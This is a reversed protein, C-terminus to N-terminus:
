PNSQLYTSMASKLAREATARLESLQDHQHAARMAVVTRRADLMTCSARQAVILCVVGAISGLAELGDLRESSYRSVLVQRGMASCGLLRAHIRRWRETAYIRRHAQEIANWSSTACGTGVAGQALAQEFAEHHSQLGLAGSAEGFYWALDAEARARDYDGRNSRRQEPRTESDDRM